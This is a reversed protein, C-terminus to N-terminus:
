PGQPPVGPVVVALTRIPPINNTRLSHKFMVASESKHVSACLIRPVKLVATSKLSEPRARAVRGGARMRRRNILVHARGLRVTHLTTWYCCCTMSTHKTHAHCENAGSSDPEQTATPHPQWKRVAQQWPMYKITFISIQTRLKFPLACQPCSTHADCTRHTATTGCAGHVASWRGGCM